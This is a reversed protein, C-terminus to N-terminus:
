WLGNSRAYFSPDYQGIMDELNVDRGCGMRAPMSVIVIIAPLVKGYVYDRGCGMRAPM